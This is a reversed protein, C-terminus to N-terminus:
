IQGMLQAIMLRRQEELNGGQNQLNTFDNMQGAHAVGMQGALIQRNLQSEQPKTSLLMNLNSLNQSAGQRALQDAQQQLAAQAAKPQMRMAFPVTAQMTSAIQSPPQVPSEPAAQPTSAPTPTNLSMGLRADGRRMMPAVKGSKKGFPADVARLPRTATPTTASASTPASAAQFPNPAAYGTANQRAASAMGASIPSGTGLPIKWDKTPSYTTLAM